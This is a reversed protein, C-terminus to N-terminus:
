CNGHHLQKPRSCVYHEDPMRMIGPHPAAGTTDDDVGTTKQIVHPRLRRDDFAFTQLDTPDVFPIAIECQALEFLHKLYRLWSSLLQLLESIWSSLVRASDLGVM